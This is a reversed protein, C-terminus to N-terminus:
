KGKRAPAEDAEAEDPEPEGAEEEAEAEEAEAEPEPEEAAEAAEQPGRPGIGALLIEEVSRGDEQVLKFTSASIEASIQKAM